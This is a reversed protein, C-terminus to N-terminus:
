LLAQGLLARGVWTKLLDTTPSMVHAARADRLLRALKGNERYGMGGCLTMAENALAVATDGAAAKCALVGLLADAEGADARAAASEILRGTRELETWLGGLRHALLPNSGLLEGSHGQRRTRLHERAIEFASTAVGLYTGAMAMLFYPAIVEFVYWLQDGEEGLLRDAPVSVGNLHLTRSSNSRMGLGAWAEDWVVGPRDADLVVCSFDGEDHLADNAHASVVYSDAHGGNTVFSKTGTLEFEDDARRLRTEPLWFFAGTGPESLALTTVHEGRAIPELYRERHYASAKAAIVASGVCHMAYCLATSPSERALVRSIALLGALGQGHGGLEVPVHLGLLGADALARMAPAPWAADRDEREVNPEIVGTAIERARGVLEHM